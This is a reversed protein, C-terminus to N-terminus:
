SLSDQLNRAKGSRLSELVNFCVLSTSYVEEFKIPTGRGERLSEIFLDLMSKQGKNQTLLKTRSPKGKGFVSLERFDELRATVGSQYVEIHEKGLSTSGNAFYHISGISGNEYRIIISLTDNHSLPDKMSAGYVSIPLAKNVFTLYDVFHCIEGLIRGGGVEVDQMWSDSPIAGANIRYILATPECNLKKKLAPSLPSFRRNYGVMLSQTGVGSTKQTLLDRITELEELELCLPKEVFVHKGAKLADIVYEGHSDHRTAIFVTNIEESDIIDRPNTSCFGFGFKDAVSRAAASTKTVVGKLLINQSTPLNPLL